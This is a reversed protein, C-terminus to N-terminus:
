EKIAWKLCIVSSGSDKGVSLSLYNSNDGDLWANRSTSAIKAIVQKAESAKSINLKECLWSLSLTGKSIGEITSPAITERIAKVLMNAKQAVVEGNGKGTCYFSPFRVALPYQLMFLAEAQEKAAKQEDTLKEIVITGAGPTIRNLVHEKYALKASVFKEIANDRMAYFEEAVPVGLRECNSIARQANRLASLNFMIKEAKVYTCFSVPKSIKSSM